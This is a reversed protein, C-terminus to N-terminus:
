LPWMLTLGSDSCKTTHEDLKLITVYDLTM